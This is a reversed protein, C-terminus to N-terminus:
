LIYTGEKTPIDATRKTLAVPSNRDSQEDIPALFLFVNIFFQFHQCSGPNGQFVAPDQHAFVKGAQSIGTAQMVAEQVTHLDHPTTARADGITTVKLRKQGSSQEIEEDTVPAPHSRLKRVSRQFLQEYGLFVVRCEENGFKDVIVQLVYYERYNMYEPFLSSIIDPVTKADAYVHPEIYRKEPYLPHSLHRLFTKLVDVTTCWQLLNGVANLMTSFEASLYQGRRPDMVYGGM